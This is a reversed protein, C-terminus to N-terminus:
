TKSYFFLPKSPMLPLTTTCSTFYPNLTIFQQFCIKCKSPIKIMKACSISTMIQAQFLRKLNTQLNFSNSARNLGQNLSRLSDSYKSFHHKAFGNIYDFITHWYLNNSVIDSIFHKSKTLLKKLKTTTISDILNIIQIQMRLMLLVLIMLLARFFILLVLRPSQSVITLCPSFLASFFNACDISDSSSVFHNSCVALQIDFEFHEKNALHESDHGHQEKISANFNRSRNVLECEERCKFIM